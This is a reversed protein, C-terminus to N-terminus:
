KASTLDWANVWQISDLKMGFDNILRKHMDALHGAGYFVGFNTKGQDIERRLVQFAKANRQSIITSGKTGEIARMQGDMDKIQEAFVQKLRTERDKSMMAALMATEQSSKAKSQQVLAQGMVRGFMHLFGDERKKMDAAFEEPTMDAHVFNDVTYDILELQHELGLMDKMGTQLASVPHGSGGPVGGKPIRTGEPAVIEYLLAEYKQFRKNLEDYYSREGVHVAGILDVTVKSKGDASVYRAVATQLSVPEGADNTKTRLFVVKEPDAPAEAQEAQAMGSQIALVLTCAAAAARTAYSYITRHRLNM